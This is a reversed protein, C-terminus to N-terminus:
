VAVPMAVVGILGNGAGPELQHPELKTALNETSMVATALRLYGFTAPSMHGCTGRRGFESRSRESTSAPPKDLDVPRVEAFLDTGEDGAGLGLLPDRVLRRFPKATILTRQISLV